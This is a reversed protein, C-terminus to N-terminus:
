EDMTPRGGQVRYSQRRLARPGNGADQQIVATATGAFDPVGRRYSCIGFFM